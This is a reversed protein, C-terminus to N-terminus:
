EAQTVHKRYHDYMFLLRSSCAEVSDNQCHEGKYQEFSHRVGLRLLKEHFGIISPCLMEELFGRDGCDMLLGVELERMEDLFHWPSNRTRHAKGEPLPGWLREDVLRPSLSALEPAWEVLEKPTKEDPGPQRMENKLASPSWAVCSCFLEPHHLTLNIAGYGGMSHGCIMRSRPTSKVRFRAEMEPILESIVHTELPLTGDFRDVWQSCEIRGFGWPMLVTPAPFGAAALTSIAQILNPEEPLRGWGHLYILLPTDETKPPCWAIFFTQRGLVRSRYDIPHAKYM